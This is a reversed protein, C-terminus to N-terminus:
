KHLEERSWIPDETIKPIYLHDINYGFTKSNIDNVPPVLIKQECESADWCKSTTIKLSFFVAQKKKKKKLVYDLFTLFDLKM